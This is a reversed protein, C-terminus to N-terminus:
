KEGRQVQFAGPARRRSGREIYAFCPINLTTKLPGRVPISITAGFKGTTDPGTLWAALEYMRVQPLKRLTVRMAKHSVTPHGLRFDGPLNSTITLRAEKTERPRLFGFMAYDPRLVFPAIFFAKIPVRLAQDRDGLEIVLTDEVPGTPAEPQSTVLVSVEGKQISVVKAKFCRTETSVSPARIPSDVNGRLKVYMSKTNPLMVNAFFLYQPDWSLDAKVRGTLTLPVQRHNEDTTSIVVTYKFWGPSYGVAVYARIAGLRGPDVPARPLDVHVCSCSASADTVRLPKDGVNKFRFACHLSVGQRVAGFDYETELFGITGGPGALLHPRGLTPVPEQASATGPLALASTCLAVGTITRFLGLLRLLQRALLM